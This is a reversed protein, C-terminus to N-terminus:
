DLEKIKEIAADMVEPSAGFFKIGDAGNKANENVWDRADQATIIPKKSGQGFGTYAYIRPAIIKNEASRKKESLVWDLGNGAMVDRVTTIGHAMWLKYVYEAPTGQETGGIHVHMDILGPMAFMGNADVEKGNKALVPRGEAKIPMGENAVIVIKVIRNNEIVIDVPGVAPSGTGNILTVGRIILQTYPGGGENRDPAPTIQANVTQLLLSLVLLQISRILLKM